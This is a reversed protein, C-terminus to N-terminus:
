GSRGWSQVVLAQVVQIFHQKDHVSSKTRIKIPDINVTMDSSLEVM